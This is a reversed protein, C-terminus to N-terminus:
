REPETRCMVTTYAANQAGSTFWEHGNIVWEDGESDATTKLQTPDSSAVNAETMGFSPFLTGDALPKLYADRWRESAYRQLMISDQLSHTGLAGTAIDSRGIVENIFVYDM